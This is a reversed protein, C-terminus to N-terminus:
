AASDIFYLVFSLFVLWLGVYIRRDEQTFIKVVNRRLTANSYYEKMSVVQGVDHIVDIATQICRRVIEYLSLHIWPTAPDRDPKLTTPYTDLFKQIKDAIKEQRLIDDGLEARGKESLLQKYIADYEQADSM